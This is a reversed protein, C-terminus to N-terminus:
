ERGILAALDRSHREIEARVEPPYLELTRLWLGGLAIAQFYATERLTKRVVVMRRRSALLRLVANACEGIIVDAAQQQEATLRVSKVSM